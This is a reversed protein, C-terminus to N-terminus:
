RHYLNGAGDAPFFLNLFVSGTSATPNLQSQFNKFVACALEIERIHCSVPLRCSLLKSECRSVPHAYFITEKGGMCAGSLGSANHCFRHKGLLIM